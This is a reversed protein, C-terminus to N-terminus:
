DTTTPPTRHLPITFITTWRNTTHTTHLSGGLSEVRQQAQILGLQSSTATSTPQDPDIPNTCMCELTSNDAEITLITTSSPYTGPRTTSSNSLTHM